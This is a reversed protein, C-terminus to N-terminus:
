VFPQANLSILDPECLQAFPELKDPDTVGQAGLEGRPPVAISKQMPIPSPHQQHASADGSCSDRHSASREPALDDYAGTEKRHGDRLASSHDVAQNTTITEAELPDV